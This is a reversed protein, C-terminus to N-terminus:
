AYLVLGRAPGTAGVPGGPNTRRLLWRPPGGHTRLCAVMMCEYIRIAGRLQKWLAREEADRPRHTVLIHQCGDSVAAPVPPADTRRHGMFGLRFILLAAHPYELFYRPHLPRPEDLAQDFKKPNPCPEDSRGAIRGHASNLGRLAMATMDYDDYVLRGLWAARESTGLRGAPQLWLALLLYLPPVLFPAWRSLANVVKPNKSPLSM